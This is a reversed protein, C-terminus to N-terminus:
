AKLSHFDPPSALSQRAIGGITFSVPTEGIIDAREQDFSSAVRSIRESLGIKIAFEVTRAGMGGSRTDDFTSHRLLLGVIRGLHVGSPSDSDERPLGRPLLNLEPDSEPSELPDAIQCLVGEALDCWDSSPVWCPMHRNMDRSRGRDLGPRLAVAMMFGM